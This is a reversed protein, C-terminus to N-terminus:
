KRAMVSQVRDIALRECRGVYKQNFKQQFVKKEKVQKWSRQKWDRTRDIKSARRLLFSNKLPPFYEIL